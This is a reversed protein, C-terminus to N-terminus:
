SQGCRELKMYIKKRIEQEKYTNKLTEMYKKNKGQTM